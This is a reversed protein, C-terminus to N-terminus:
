ACTCARRTRAWPMAPTSRATPTTSRPFSACRPTSRACSPRPTNWRRASRRRSRCSRSASTPRRARVRLRHVEASRLQRPLVGLAILLTLKPWRLAWGLIARYVRNAREQAGNVIRAFRGTGHAQPDYWVSSLMPDLTFSVFLSILVAASVMVGFQFFFRGIIGGMFAVPLFVAVICFTTALVALGIENTGDIAAQRHTKGFGIHRMINERVVIADDILIGIALSLAMLTLVNLTFGFAAMVMFAGFVSIPLALGTIVTSRWSHLFLFVIAITLLGGEVMTQQVNDVSNQIGRSSDRM